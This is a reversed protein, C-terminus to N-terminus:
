LQAMACFFIEIFSASFFLEFCFFYLKELSWAFIQANRLFAVFGV